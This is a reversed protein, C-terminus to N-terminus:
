YLGRQVLNVPVTCIADYRRCGSDEKFFHGRSGRWAPLGAELCVFMCSVESQM